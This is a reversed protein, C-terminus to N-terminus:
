DKICRVTAGNSRNFNTFVQSSGDIQWLRGTSAAIVWYNGQVGNNALAGTLGERIGPTTFGLVSSAANSSNTISAAARVFGIENEQPLKYGDPCASNDAVEYLYWM